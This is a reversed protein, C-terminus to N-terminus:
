IYIIFIARASLLMSYSGTYAHYFDHCYTRMTTYYEGEQWVELSDDVVTPIVQDSSTLVDAEPYRALYPLPNQTVLEHNFM